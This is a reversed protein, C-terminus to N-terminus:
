DGDIHCQECVEKDIDYRATHMNSTHNYEGCSDCKVLAGSNVQEVFTHLTTAHSPKLGENKCWTKFDEFMEKEIM